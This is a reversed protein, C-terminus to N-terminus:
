AQPPAPTDNEKKKGGFFRWIGAGAAGLAIIVLKLNKLLLAFIGAKALVKGAVLGGVTWAAVEDVNSDFEGYTYGENFSAMNLVAPIGEKVSELQDMSGIANLILVGKRGLVRVNYNLTNVEASDAHLEKAWHLVKRQNDYFPPAAWGVLELGEYGAARREENAARSDNMLETLLEDYDIDDADEDSVYGMPDYEVVFTYTDDFVGANEQFIMGLVGEAAGPPNGWVDVLVARSQEADLFKFGAPVNITAVGDALPIAGTQYAYAAEVSDVFAAYAAEMAAESTDAEANQAHLAIPSLLILTYCVLRSFIHMLHTQHLLIPFLRSIASIAPITDAWQCRAM